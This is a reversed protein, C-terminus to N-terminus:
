GSSTRLSNYMQLFTSSSDQKIKQYEVIINLDAEIRKSDRGFSHSERAYRSNNLENLTKRTELNSQLLGLADAQSVDLHQALWEVMGSKVERPDNSALKSRLSRLDITTTSSKQKPRKERQTFYLYGFVLALSWGLGIIVNLWWDPLGTTSLGSGVNHTSNAVVEDSGSGALPDPAVVMNRGGIVTEVLKDTETNWWYIPVDPVTYKGPETLLLSASQTRRGVIRSILATDELTPSTPYQRIEDPVPFEVEPIGTSHADTASITVERIITDGAHLQELDAVALSDSIRVDRAPFWDHNAPFEDPIPLVELKEQHSSVSLALERTGLSVRVPVVVPPIILEGSREPFLVFRQVLVNYNREERLAFTREVEGVIVVLANDVDTPRPIEQRVLVNNSYYLKRTVHVAAQVYQRRSEIATEFFVNEKLQKKVEDDLERVIITIPDTKEGGIDFSPITISGIRRPELQITFSSKSQVNGNVINLIRNEGPGYTRFDKQLVTWDPPDIDRATGQTEVTLTIAQTEDIDSKDVWARVAAHSSSALSVAILCSLVRVM